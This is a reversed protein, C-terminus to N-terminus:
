LEGRFARHLISPLLADLEEASESQLRKIDNFKARLSALESLVEHQVPLPPVPVLLRELKTGNVNPQGTGEKQDGIQAWYAPSQFFEYLYAPLVPHPVDARVRLRILYSAFVAEEPCERILFSKGTTAGTRAFVIDDAKLLYKAPDSCPCYPVSEWNVNGDQIDTIRLFRPGVPALTASETFGYQSPECLEDVRLAMWDAKPTFVKAYASALLAELSAWSEAFLQETSQVHASVRSISGVLRRQEALPPLPIKSALFFQEKFRNRTLPTSGTCKEEVAALTPKLRFFYNLYRAELRDPDCTFTPFENSVYCGALEPTILGFAGRWAFLRSYIFDGDEVRSLTAASSQAGTKTERLFPGAGDLRVGLLRYNKEPDVREPRTVQTVLDGLPVSPWKM